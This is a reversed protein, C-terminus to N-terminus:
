KGAYTKPSGLGTCLDWGPKCRSDGTTIDNFDAHYAGPNALKSYMSTLQALSSQRRSGAANVIGAMTPSSWSTGGVSGWGGLYIAACCFDSSIDPYGRHTGVIGAIGNQYSPRPEYPSLDGGGGGTYYQEYTFKGNSDRNFYTGGVSVINPSAAPYGSVGLGSDGAAAFYVVGPQTFYQDFGTEQPIEADGFSMSVVGGGNAAVLRGAYQVAQWTPDTTCAPIECLASVVLFLKAQPAMAHAWEIDLAEEVEWDQYVPPRIPTPWVQTITTAPIGFYTDFADLDSQATPYYGADVIAIAGIGGNPVTTSTAIPCGTPGAVFQYVCAVSGPTEAGAPPQPAALQDSDVFFYNTHQRGPWPISSAPYIIRHGNFTSEYRDQASAPCLAAGAFLVIAVMTLMAIQIDRRFANM